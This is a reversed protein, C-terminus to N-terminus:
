IWRRVEIAFSRFLGPAERFFGPAEPGSLSFLGPAMM